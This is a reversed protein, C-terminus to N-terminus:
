NKTNIMEFYFKDFDFKFKKQSLLLMDLSIKYASNSFLLICM